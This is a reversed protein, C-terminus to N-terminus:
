TINITTNWSNAANAVYYIYQQTQGSITTFNVPTTCRVFATAQNVATGTTTLTAINGYSSKYAFVLRYGYGSGPASAGDNVVFTQARATGFRLNTFAQILAIDISDVDAGTATLPLLPDAGTIETYNIYGYYFVDAFSLSVSASTTDNGTARTVQNGVVVLGSKPKILTLSYTQATTNDNQVLPDSDAPFYIPFTTFIFDGSMATPGQEGTALAPITAIGSTLDVYCGTPVQISGTLASATGPAYNQIAHTTMPTSNDNERITWQAAITPTPLGTFDLNLMLGSTGGSLVTTDTTLTFDGTHYSLTVPDGTGGNGYVPDATVVIGSTGATGQANINVTIQSSDGPNPTVVVGAGTFNISTVQPTILQSQYLVSVPNGGTGATGGTGSTGGVVIQYLDDEVDYELESLNKKDIILFANNLTIVDTFLGDSTLVPKELQLSRTLKIVGTKGEDSMSEAM